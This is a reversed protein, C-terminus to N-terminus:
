HQWCYSDGANSVCHKCQQGTSKAIAKCQGYRCDYDETKNSTETTPKQITQEFSTPTNFSLLGVVLLLSLLSKKM